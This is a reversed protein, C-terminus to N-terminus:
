RLLLFTGMKNLLVNRNAFKYKIFYAFVGSQQPIGKFVGDWGKQLNSTAYVLEGWRNYITMEGSILCNSLPKYFDNIGNNIPTFATPFYANCNCDETKKKVVITDRITGCYTTVEAWYIGPQKVTYTSNHTADQWTYHFRNNHLGNTLIASGNECIEMDAGLDVEPYLPDCICSDNQVINITDSKTGCANTVKLWYKGPQLATINETAENNSWLYNEGQQKLFQNSLTVSKGPCLLLDSGLSVQPHTGALVTVSDTTVGCVNSIQLWYTGPRTANFQYGISGDQWLYSTIGATDAPQLTLQNNGPCLMTDGGLNATPSKTITLTISDEAGCTDPLSHYRLKYTGSSFATLTDGERIQGNPMTWTYTGNANIWRGTGKLLVGTGSCYPSASETSINVVARCGPANCFDAYSTLGEISAGGSIVSYLSSTMTFPAIRFLQNGGSSYLFGDGLTTLGYGNGTTGSVVFTQVAGTYINIKAIKNDECSAYLFGNLFVLDGASVLNYTSLGVVFTIQGTTLNLKVIDWETNIKAALYLNGAADSTMANATTYGTLEAKVQTSGTYPNVELVKKTAADLVYLKGNPTWTIDFFTGAPFIPISRYDNTELDLWFLKNVSVGWVIRTQVCNDSSTSNFYCSFDNVDALGNGDDDTGNNCIETALPTNPQTPRYAQILSDGKLLSNDTLQQCKVTTESLMTFLLLFFLSPRM